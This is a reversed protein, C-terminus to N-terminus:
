QRSLPELGPDNYVWAHLYSYEEASLPTKKPMEEHYVKIDMLLKQGATLDALTVPDTFIVFEGQANGGTHCKACRTTLIELARSNLSADDATPTDPIMPLEPEAPADPPAPDAPPEPTPQIPPTTGAKGEVADALVTVATTLARVQDNLATIQEDQVSLASEMQNQERQYGGVLAASYHYQPEVAVLQVREIFQAADYQAAAYVQHQVVPQVVIKEVVQKQVVQQV